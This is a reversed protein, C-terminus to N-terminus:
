GCGCGEFMIVGLKNEGAALGLGVSMPGDNADETLRSDLSRWLRGADGSRDRAGTGTGLALVDLAPVDVEPCERLGDSVPIPPLRPTHVWM